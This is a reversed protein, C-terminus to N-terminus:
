TRHLICCAQPQRVPIVWLSTLRPSTPSPDHKPICICGHHTWTLTHCFWYLITFYFLTFIFILFYFIFICTFELTTLFGEQWNGKWIKKMHRETEIVNRSVALFEFYALCECSFLQDSSIISKLSAFYNKDLVFKTFRLRETTDSEKRGRPSYGVLSRRSGNSKGPM